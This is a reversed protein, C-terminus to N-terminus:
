RSGGSEQKTSGRKIAGVEATLDIGVPCWTICRGCGVCGSVGFQEVWSSLKHTLWQRYRSKGSIRFNGGSVKAFDMTFCSDWTRIRGAIRGALDTRDEVTSCFCTPCVMTCNGCTLCRKAVDDWQPHDTNEALLEPLDSTDMIRTVAASAKRITEDAAGVDSEDAGGAGIGELLSTGADSGAEAVFYHSEGNIIETLVIDFGAGAKPGTGMSTCFCTEAPQSCNVAIIFNRRRVSLYAEDRYDGSSFVRDQISIASLECARVGVFAYAPSRDEKPTLGFSRGDKRLTFLERCPPYLFRKWSQPPLTYGFFQRNGSKTLRYMGPTLEDVFGAPLDDISHIRDYVIVGDSYRPGIVDYGKQQLSMIVRELGEITLRFPNNM